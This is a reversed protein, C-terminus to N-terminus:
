PFKVEPHVKAKPPTVKFIHEQAEHARGRDGHWTGVEYRLAHSFAYGSLCM